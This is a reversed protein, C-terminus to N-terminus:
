RASSPRWWISRSCASSRWNLGGVILLVLAVVSLASLTGSRGTDPSSSVTRDM